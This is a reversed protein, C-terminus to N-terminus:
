NRYDDESRNGKRRNCTYCLIQVNDMTNVGGKSVPVVHDITLISDDRDCNPNMCAEGYLKILQAMCDKPLQGVLGRYRNLAQMRNAERREPRQNYEPLYKALYNPMYEPNAIRWNRNQENTRERNEEHYKRNYDPNDLYWQDRLEKKRQAVEPKSEYAQSRKRMCIRCKARRGYKGRKEPGFDELSKTENCDTCIKKM